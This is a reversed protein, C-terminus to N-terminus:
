PGTPEPDAVEELRKADVEVGVRRRVSEVFARYRRSLAQPDDALLRERIMERSEDFTPTGAERRGTATLIALGEPIEVVPSIEGPMLALATAEYGSPLAGSDIWGLRGGERSTPSESHRRALAAFDEGSALAVRLREIKARASLADPTDDSPGSVSGFTVMIESLDVQTQTGLEGHHADYWARVESDPIATARVEDALLFRTLARNSAARVSEAVAPRRDIGRERADIALALEDVIEDLLIPKGGQREYFARRASDLADWRADFQARTLTEDGVRAVVGSDDTAVSDARIGRKGLRGAAFGLMGGVIVGVALLLLVHSEKRSGASAVDNM